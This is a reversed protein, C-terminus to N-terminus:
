VRAANYHVGQVLLCLKLLLAKCHSWTLWVDKSHVCQAALPTHVFRDDKVLKDNLAKIAQVCCWALIDILIM